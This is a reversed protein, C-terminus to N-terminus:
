LETKYATNYKKNKHQKGFQMNTYIYIIIGQGPKNYRQCKKRKDKIENGRRHQKEEQYFLFWNRGRYPYGINIYESEQKM